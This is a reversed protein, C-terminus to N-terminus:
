SKIGDEFTKLVETAFAADPDNKATAVEHIMEPASLDPADERMKGIINVIAQPDKAKTAKQVLTDM